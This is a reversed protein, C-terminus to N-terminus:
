RRADERMEVSSMKNLKKTEKLFYDACPKRIGVGPKRGFVPLRGISILRYRHATQKGFAGSTIWPEGPARQAFHFSLPRTRVQVPFWYTIKVVIAKAVRETQPGSYAKVM